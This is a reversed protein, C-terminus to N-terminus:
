FAGCRLMHRVAISTNAEICTIPRAKPQKKGKETEEEASPMLNIHERVIHTSMPRAVRLSPQLSSPQGKGQALIALYQQVGRTLQQNDLILAEKHLSLAARELYARNYRKWFNDLKVYNFIEQSM